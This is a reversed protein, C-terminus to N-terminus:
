RLRKLAVSFLGVSAGALMRAEAGVEVAGGLVRPPTHTVVFRLVAGAAARTLTRAETGRKVANGRGPTPVRSEVSYAWHWGEGNTTDYSNPAM